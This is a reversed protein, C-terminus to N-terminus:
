RRDRLDPATCLRLAILHACADSRAPCSCRWVGGKFGLRYIAGNGRCTADVRSPTCRTIVLRGETLYRRGKAPAAERIM